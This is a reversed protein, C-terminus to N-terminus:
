KKVVMSTFIISCGRDKLTSSLVSSSGTLEFIIKECGLAEANELFADILHRALGMGRFNKEVWVVNSVALLNSSNDSKFISGCIVGAFEGDITEACVSVFNNGPIKLCSRNKSILYDGLLSNEEELSERISEASKEKIINEWKSCNVNFIFDTLILDETEDTNEDIDSYKLIESNLNYWDIVRSRM